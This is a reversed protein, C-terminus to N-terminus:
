GEAVFFAQACALLQDVSGVWVSAAKPPHNLYGYAACDQKQRKQSREM